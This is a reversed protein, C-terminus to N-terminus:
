KTLNINGKIKIGMSVELTYRDLVKVEDQGDTTRLVAKIRAFEAEKLYPVHEAKIEYDESSKTEGGVPVVNGPGIVGSKCLLQDNIIKVTDGSPNLLPKYNKDLLMVQLTADLPFGNIVNSKISFNQIVDLAEKLGVTVTDLVVFKVKGQLPMKMSTTMECVAGKTIFNNNKSGANGPNAQLLPQMVLWSPTPTIFEVINSNTSNISLIDVKPSSTAPKILLTGSGKKNLPLTEDNYLIGYCSDLNLDMPIGFGNKYSLEMSPNTLRFEGKESVSKFLNIQTSDKSLPFVTQGFDGELRSYDPETIEVKLDKMTGLGAVSSMDIELDFKGGIPVMVKGALAESKSASTGIAPFTMIINPEFSTFKFVINGSTAPTTINFNVSLSGKSLFIKDPNVSAGDFLNVSTDIRSSVIPLEDFGIPAPTPFTFLKDASISVSEGAYILTVLGGAGVNMVNPDTKAVVDAAILKSYMLPMAVEPNWTTKSLRNFEFNEKKVCSGIAITVILLLIVSKIKM